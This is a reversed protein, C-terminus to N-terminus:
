VAINSGNVRWGVKLAGHLDTHQVANDILNFVVETLLDPDAELEVRPERKM